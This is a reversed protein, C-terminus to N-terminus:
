SPSVAKFQNSNCRATSSVEETRDHRIKYGQFGACRQQVTRPCWRQAFDPDIEGLETTYTVQQDEIYYLAWNHSFLPYYHVNYYLVVYGRSIPGSLSSSHGLTVNVHQTKSSPLVHPSRHVYRFRPRGFSVRLESLCCTPNANWQVASVTSQVSSLHPRIRVRVGTRGNKEYAVLALPM